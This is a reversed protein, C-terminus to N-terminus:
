NSAHFPKYSSALELYKHILTNFVISKEDLIKCLGYISCIIIQDLHRNKLITTMQSLCRKVVIWINERIISGINLCDCLRILRHATYTNVKKFLIREAGGIPVNNNTEEIEM